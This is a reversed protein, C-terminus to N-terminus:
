QDLIQKQRKPEGKLAKVQKTQNQFFLHMFIASDHKIGKKIIGFLVMFLMSRGHITTRVMTENFCIEFDDPFTDKEFEFRIFPYVPTGRTLVVM